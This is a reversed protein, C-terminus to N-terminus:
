FSISQHVNRTYIDSALCIYYISFIPNDTFNTVYLVGNTHSKM